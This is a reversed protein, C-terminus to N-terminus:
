ELEENDSTLDLIIEWLTIVLVVGCIVAPITTGVATSPEAALTMIGAVIAAIGLGLDLNKRQWGFIIVKIIIIFLALWGVSEVIQMKLLVLYTGLSLAFGVSRFVISIFKRM